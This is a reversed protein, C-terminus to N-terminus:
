AHLPQPQDKPGRPPHTPSDPSSIFKKLVRLHIAAGSASIATRAMAPHLPSDDGVAGLGVPPPPPTVGGLPEVTVSVTDLAVGSTSELEVIVAVTECPPM